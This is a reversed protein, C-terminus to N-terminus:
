KSRAVSTTVIVCCTPQASLCFAMFRAFIKSRVSWRESALSLVGLLSKPNEDSNSVFVFATDNIAQLM